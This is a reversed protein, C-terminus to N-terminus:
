PAAVAVAPKASPSPPTTDTTKPIVKVGPRVRQLGSVIVRDTPSIGEEIVRLRDVQRGLKVRRYVVEDKDNVLYVYKQGQDSALAEEPILTVKREPGVPVRVRVFLGPSLLLKPNPVTARTRLTGTNADVQNDVFDITGARTFTEEDALAIQVEIATSRASSVKGDEILRRYKLLTREDIDFTAYIPDLAVLNTLLTDNAKVINGPDVMRRSLRGAFKANIKTYGLNTEALKLAAKAVALAGDAEARDGTIRDIEEQSAAGSSRLRTMREFDRGLRDMLAQAQSVSAKASDVTAVYIRPDIDFLPDGAQVDAGDKFHVTDLYGSVQARIDISNVPETRGTFDEYDVIDATTPNQVVVEPAKPAALEPTPKACGCVVLLLGLVCLGLGRFEGLQVVTRRTLYPLVLM